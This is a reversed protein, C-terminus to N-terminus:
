KVELNMGFVPIKMGIIGRWRTIGFKTLKDAENANSNVGPFDIKQSFKTTGNSYTTGLILDAWKLHIDFGFGVQFFDLNLDVDNENDGILDFINANKNAKEKKIM